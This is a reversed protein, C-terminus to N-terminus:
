VKLPEGTETFLRSIVVEGSDDQEFAWLDKTAKHVLESSDVSTRLFDSLDGLTHARRVFGSARKQNAGAQRLHQRHMAMFRGDDWKVFVLDGQSTTDGEATRVMVVTGESDPAPPDTYTLVSGINTEFNVRAGAAVPLILANAERGDDTLGRMGSPDAPQNSLYLDLSSASRAQQGLVLEDWFNSM